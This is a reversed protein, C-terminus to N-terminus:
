SRMWRFAMTANKNNDKTKLKGEIQWLDQSKERVWSKKNQFINGKLDAYIKDIQIKEITIKLNIIKVKHKQM